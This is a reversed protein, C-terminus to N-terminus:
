WPLRLPNPTGMVLAVLAFGKGAQKDQLPVVSEGGMWTVPLMLLTQETPM